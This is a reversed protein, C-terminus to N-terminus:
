ELHAQPTILAGNIMLGAFLLVAVVLLALMLRRRRPDTEPRRDFAPVLLMLILAPTLVYPIAQLGLYNEVAYMWLLYWDPKSIEIGPNGISTLPAPIMLSVIIMFVFALTGYLLMRWIHASFRVMKEKVPTEAKPGSIGLVRILYVHLGVVLLAIIPLLSVHASNVRILLPVDPAFSPSFWYSLPGAFAALELNHGLAEVGEQDWKLVSGTFTLLWLTVLLAVGSVWLLERPKKYAASVYVRVMHLLVLIILFQAGWYHLNRVFSWLPISVIFQVSNYAANEDPVPHYFQQLLVGTIGQVLGLVVVTGGLVYAPSNAHTPILHDLLSGLGLRGKTWPLLRRPNM